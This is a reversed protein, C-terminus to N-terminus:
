AWLLAVVRGEEDVVASGSDGESSFPGEGDLPEVRVQDRLTRWGTGPGFDVSTTFDTSVVKGRTLGTTRGRKRVAAGEQAAGAGTVLGIEVIGPVWPTGPALAVVAADMRDTLAGRVLAGVRDQSPHGGDALAPQIWTSGADELGDGAAVHWNTLGLTRGSLLDTVLVGLTGNVSRLQAEGDVPVTVPQAPGFSMGGALPRYRGAGAPEAPAATGVDASAVLLRVRREVVDTPVGDIQQPIRQDAPVHDGKSEVHVVISQRGTPAGGSWKEGIDVGVVGPRALLADEIGRKTARIRDRSLDDQPPTRDTM